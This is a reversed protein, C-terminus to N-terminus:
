ASQQQKRPRGRKPPQPLTPQSRSRLWATAQAIPIYPRRGIYIRPMGQQAWNLVTRPQRGLAAAFDAVTALDDLVKERVSARASVESWAREILLETVKAM